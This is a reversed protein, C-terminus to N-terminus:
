VAMKSGKLSEYLLQSAQPIVCPFYLNISLLWSGYFDALHSNM